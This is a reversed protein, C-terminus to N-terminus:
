LIFVGNAAGQVPEEEGKTTLEFGCGKESYLLIKVRLLFDDEANEQDIKWGDMWGRWPARKM